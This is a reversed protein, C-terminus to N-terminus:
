VLRIKVSHNELMLQQIHAQHAIMLSGGGRRLMKKLDEEESLKIWVMIFSTDQNAAPPLVAQHGSQSIDCPDVPILIIFVVVKAPRPLVITQLFIDRFWASSKLAQLSNSSASLKIEFRCHFCTPSGVLVWTELGAAEGECFDGLGGSSEVWYADHLKPNVPTLQQWCRLWVSSWHAPSQAQLVWPEFQVFQEPELFSHVALYQKVIRNCIKKFQIKIKQLM